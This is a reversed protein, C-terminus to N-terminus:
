SSLEFDVGLPELILFVIVEFFFAFASVSCILLNSWALDLFYTKFKLIKKKIRKQGESGGLAGGPPITGRLPIVSPRTYINANELFLTGAGLRCRM